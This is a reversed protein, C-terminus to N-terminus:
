ENVEEVDTVLVTVIKDANVYKGRGVEVLPIEKFEKISVDFCLNGKISNMIYNIPDQEEEHALKYGYEVFKIDPGVEMKFTVNAKYTKSITKDM